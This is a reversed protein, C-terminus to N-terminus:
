KAPKVAFSFSGSSVALQARGNEVKLFKVGRVDILPLGGETIEDASAAPLSIMAATNAPILINFTLGAPSKKWESRITGRISDYAVRASTLKGGLEPAILIRDYALGANRIGGINEVM